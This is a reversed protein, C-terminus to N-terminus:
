ARARREVIAPHGGQAALLDQASRALRVTAQFDAADYRASARELQDDARALLEPPPGPAPTRPAARAAKVGPPRAAAPPPSPARPFRSGPARQSATRTRSRM